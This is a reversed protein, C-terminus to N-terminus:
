PLVIRGGGMARLFEGRLRERAWATLAERDVALDTRAERALVDRIQPLTKHIAPVIMHSPREGALQIADAFPFYADSALVSGHSREAARHIAIEVATLRSAQGASRLKRAGAAGPM